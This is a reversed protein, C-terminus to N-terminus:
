VAFKPLAGSDFGQEEYGIHIHKLYEDSPKQNHTLRDPNAVYIHGIGSEGTLDSFGIGIRVYHSPEGEYRDLRYLHKKSILYAAFPCRFGPGIYAINAYVGGGDAKKNFMLRYGEMYGSRIKYAEGIREMLRESSMNSGYAVYWQRDSSNELIYRRYDGCIVPHYENLDRNYFYTYAREHSGDNLLRVDTEKRLYLSHPGNDPYFGEIRDLERLKEGNIEYLEGYVSGIGEGVAPYAGLDYLVAKIFGHGRFRSGALVGSLGMAKLLTGYVFLKIMKDRVTSFTKDREETGFLILTNKQQLISKLQRSM